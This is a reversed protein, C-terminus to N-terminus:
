GQGMIKALDPSLKFCRRFLVISEDVNGCEALNEAERFISYATLDSPSACIAPRRTYMIDSRIIYKCNPYSPPVGEHVLSQHFILMRGAVASVTDTILSEDATWRNSAIRADDSAIMQLNKTASESYFRTGGGNEVDIDNLFIIVSFFSRTNFNLIARGDTHPAFAGGSPYRAFLLDSNLSSAEWEGVLEREWNEDDENDSVIIKAHPVLHKMREWISTALFLSKVEVTDADRFSRAAEDNRGKSSWFKLDECNQSVQCFAECESKSLVGDIYHLNRSGSKMEMNPKQHFPQLCGDFNSTISTSVSVKMAPRISNMSPKSADIDNETEMENLLNSNMVKELQCQM